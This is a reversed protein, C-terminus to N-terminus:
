KVPVWIESYYNENYPDGEPYVEFEPIGAHEYGSIPFWESFITKWAHQIADPMVGNVEFVMWKSASIEISELGNPKDGKYEAAIWYDIIQQSQKNKDMVCVGLIGKIQGNNLKVLTDTTGDKNLEDWMQPIKAHHDNNVFSFERKIGVAQFAERKIVYNKM